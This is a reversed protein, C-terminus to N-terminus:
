QRLDADIRDLVESDVSTSFKRAFLKRHPRIEQGQAGVAEAADIAPAWRAQALRGFDASCLWRPHSGVDPWTIYWAQALCPPMALSGLIARSGLMSAAFSEDPAHTSRWFRVLDPRRDVLRLLLEVHDRAYIKWQSSARLELEPPIRRKGPWHLPLDRWLLAQGGRTMFRHQVRWLGGDRYTRTNWQRFPMRVNRFYSHGDWSVLQDVLEQMSVLPYDTGSLVAIHRARSARVAHRLTNLEAEVLSWSALNTPLRECQTVRRPLGQTMQQVIHRPTKADCHLFIPVDELSAVLRKLHAPDTHALVVAAFETVVVSREDKFRLEAVNAVWLWV